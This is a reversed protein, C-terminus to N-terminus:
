ARPESDLALTNIERLVRGGNLVSHFGCIVACRGLRAKNGSQVDGWLLRVCYAAQNLSFDCGAVRVQKWGRIAPKLRAIVLRASQVSDESADIFHHLSMPYLCDPACILVPGCGVVDIRSVGVAGRNKEITFSAREAECGPSVEVLAILGTIREALEVGSVGSVMFGDVSWSM